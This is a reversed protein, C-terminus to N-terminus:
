PCVQVLDLRADLLVQLLRLPNLLVEFGLILGRIVREGVLASNIAAFFFALRLFYPEDTAFFTLRTIPSRLDPVSREPREFFFTFPRLCAIAIARDSDRAAPAM